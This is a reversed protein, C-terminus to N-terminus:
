SMRFTNRTLGDLEIQIAETETYAPAYAVCEEERRLSRLLVSRDALCALVGQVRTDPVCAAVTSVAKNNYTTAGAHPEALVVCNHLRDAVWRATGYVIRVDAADAVGQIAEETRRLDRALSATHNHADLLSRVPCITRIEVAHESSSRTRPQVIMLFTRRVYSKGEAVGVLPNHSSIRM